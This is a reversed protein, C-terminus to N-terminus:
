LYDDLNFEFEIVGAYEDDDTFFYIEIVFRNKIWRNATIKLKGDIGTINNEYFSVNNVVIYDKFNITECEPIKLLEELKCKLNFSLDYVTSNIKGEIIFSLTKFKEIIKPNYRHIEYDILDITVKEENVQELKNIKFM